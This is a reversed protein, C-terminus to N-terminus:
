NSPNTMQGPSPYRVRSAPRQPIPSLPKILPFPPSPYREKLTPRQPLPSITKEVLKFDTPFRRGDGNSRVLLPSIKVVPTKSEHNPGRGFCKDGTAARTAATPYEQKFYQVCVKNQSAICRGIVHENRAETMKKWDPELRESCEFDSLKEEERM